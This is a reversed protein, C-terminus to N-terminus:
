RRRRLGLLAVCALGMLAIASPEPVQVIRLNDAFGVTGEARIDAYIGVVDATNPFSPTLSTGFTSRVGALYTGYEFTNVATRAIFITDYPPANSANGTTLNSYETTNGDWGRQAVVGNNQGYVSIYDERPNAPFVSTTPTTGGVYLGLNRTGSLPDALDLQIEQGVGLSLGNKIFAYQEIGDYATTEFILQGAANTAFAGTNSGANQADLIVTTTYGSLGSNFDDILQANAASCCSIALSVACALFSQKVFTM